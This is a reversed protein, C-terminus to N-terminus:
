SHSPSGSHKVHPAFAKGEGIEKKIWEDLITQKRKISLKINKWFKVIESKKDIVLEFLPKKAQKENRNNVHLCADIELKRLLLRIFQLLEKNTNSIRIFPKGRNLSICGESDVFGQIFEKPYHEAVEKIFQNKVLLEYLHRSRGDVRFFGNKLRQITYKYGLVRELAEAFHQVFDLDKARLGIVYDFSNPRGKQKCKLLYGDGLIVGAIYALDPSPSVDAIRFRNRPNYRSYVWGNATSLPINLRKAIKRYGLGLSHLRFAEEYLFLQEEVPRDVM